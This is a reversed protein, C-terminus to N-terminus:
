SYWAEWLNGDGGKWFVDQEGTRQVAVAPASAIKGANGIRAPGHWRRGVYWKDWLQGDTGRWFVFQKGAADVGATPGSGLPGGGLNIAGHWGTAIPPPTPIPAPSAPAVATYSITATATQGDRSTATM